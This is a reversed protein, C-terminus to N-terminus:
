VGKAINGVALVVYAIIAVWYGNESMFPIQVFHGILALLALILSIVFVVTTPPTLNMERGGM